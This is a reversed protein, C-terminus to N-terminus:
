KTVIEMLDDYMANMYEHQPTESARSVILDVDIGYPRILSTIVDVSVGFGSNQMFVKVNEVGCLWMGCAIAIAEDERTCPMISEHKCGTTPVGIYNIHETMKKGKANM